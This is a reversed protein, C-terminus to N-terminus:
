SMPEVVCTADGLKCWLLHLLNCLMCSNLSSTWTETLTEIKKALLKSQALLADQSMLELLSKKTPTYARDPLIVHDSAAMNEILEMAEDPTKLKIKGGTSADLLQKSHPRLGDIFINLQIPESFGHTPTRRLVGHFRDLAESLKWWPIPSIIFNWGEVWRDQVRFLVEQLFEWGGRGLNMFWKGQILSAMEKSWRSLFFFVFQPLHCREFCRSDEDYKM